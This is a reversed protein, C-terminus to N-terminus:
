AEGRARITQAYVNGYFDTATPGLRTECVKACAEREALQGARYGQKYGIKNQRACLEDIDFEKRDKAIAKDAVLKAFAELAIFQQHWHGDGETHIAIIGAQRAMEIIEDQTMVKEGQMRPVDGQRSRQHHRAMDERLEQLSIGADSGGAEDPRQHLDQHSRDHMLEEEYAKVNSHSDSAASLM